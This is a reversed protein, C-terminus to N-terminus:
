HLNAPVTLEGKRFAAIGEIFVNDIFDRMWTSSDQERKIRDGQYFRMVALYREGPNEQLIVAEVQHQLLLEIVNQDVLMAAHGHVFVDDGDPTVGFRRRCELLYTIAEVSRAQKCFIEAYEHLEADSLPEGSKIRAGDVLWLPAEVGSQSIFEILQEVNMNEVKM